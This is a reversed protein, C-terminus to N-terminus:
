RSSSRRRLCVWVSGVLLCILCATAPEPVELSGSPTITSNAASVGAFGFRTVVVAPLSAVGLGPVNLQATVIEAAFPNHGPNGRISPNAGAYSGDSPPGVIADEANPHSDLRWVDGGLSQLSWSLDHASDSDSFTGDDDITRSIGTISLLTPTLGNLDFDVGTLLDRVDHTTPTTNTLEVTLLDGASTFEVTGSVTHGDGGTGHFIAASTSDSKGLALAATLMIAGCIRCNRVITTANM